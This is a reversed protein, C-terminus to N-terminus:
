TPATDGLSEESMLVTYGTDQPARSAFAATGAGIELSLM